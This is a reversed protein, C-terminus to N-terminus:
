KEKDIRAGCVWYCTDELFALYGPEIPCSVFFRKIITHGVRLIIM